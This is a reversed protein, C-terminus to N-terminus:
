NRICIFFSVFINKIKESNKGAKVNKNFRKSNCKILSSIRNTFNLLYIVNSM